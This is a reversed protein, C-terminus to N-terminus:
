TLDSITPFARISVELRPTKALPILPWVDIIYSPSPREVEGQYGGKYRPQRNRMWHVMTSGYDTVPGKFLHWNANEQLM